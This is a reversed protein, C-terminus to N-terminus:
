KKTKSKAGAAAGEGTKGDGTDVPVAPTEEDGEMEPIPEDLLQSATAVLARADKRKPMAGNAVQFAFSKAATLAAKVQEQKIGLFSKGGRSRRPNKQAVSKKDEADFSTGALVHRMSKLKM